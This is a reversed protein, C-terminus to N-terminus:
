RPRQPASGAPGRPSGSLSAGSRPRVREPLAPALRGIHELVIDGRNRAFQWIFEVWREFEEPSYPTLPDSLAADRIQSYDYLVEQELWSCPLEGEPRACTGGGSTPTGLTRVVEVLASLYAARLTPSDWIKGALVNAGMNQWPPVDPSEFALDQDWPILQSRSTADFRYLYFNNMGFDGLLGDKQSLFNQVALYTMVKQLDLYPEVVEEIRPDHADNIAEVMRKIPTFLNATSGDSDTKPEFREAYWDLDSGRDEFGYPEHWHYEYLHGSDEGLTRQLFAKDVAEVVTYVGAYARRAGIYLRTHSERPAAMGMRRFAAMSVRDRIMSPDQWSGNLVLSKLGLFEQGSVYRNFDVRLSPKHGNRSFRGRVRIGVNSVRLGRWELDAPYYTGELYGATLQQWDTANVHIWIEQLQSGDLLSDATLAQLQEQANAPAACWLCILVALIRTRM